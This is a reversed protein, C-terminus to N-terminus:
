SSDPFCGVVPEWDWSGSGPGAAQSLATGPPAVPTPATPPPDPARAPPAPGLTPPHVLLPGALSINFKLAEWFSINFKLTEWFSINFKQAEQFAGLTKNGFINKGLEAGFGM